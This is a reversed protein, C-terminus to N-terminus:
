IKYAPLEEIFQYSEFSDDYTCYIHQIGNTVALFPVKLTMNYRAIQDFVKQNLPISPAKCEVLIIAKGMKNRILIDVRKKLGNLQISKEVECLSLPYGFKDNVYLLCNQRVWEEPTNIYWKKRIPDFVKLHDKEQKLSIPYVPFNLLEM